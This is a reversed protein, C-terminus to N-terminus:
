TLQLFQSPELKACAKADHMDIVKRFSLAKMAAEVVEERRISYIVGERVIRTEAGDILKWSTCPIGSASHKVHGYILWYQEGSKDEFPLKKEIFGLENCIRVYEDVSQFGNLKM